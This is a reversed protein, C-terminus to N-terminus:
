LDPASKISFDSSKKTTESKIIRNIKKVSSRISNATNMKSDEEFVVSVFKTLIHKENVNIFVYADNVNSSNNKADTQLKNDILKKSETFYPSTYGSNASPAKDFIFVLYSFMVIGGLWIVSLAILSHLKFNSPDIFKL